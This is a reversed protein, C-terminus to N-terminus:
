FKKKDKVLNPRIGASYININRALIIGNKDIIDAREIILDKKNETFFFNREPFLSLYVIKISFIIILSLFVFFLFTVRNLSVKVTNINKSKFFIESQEYDDFFFSKQDANKNKKM